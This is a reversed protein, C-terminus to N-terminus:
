LPILDRQQEANRIQERLTAIEDQDTDKTPKNPGQLVALKLKKEAISLEELWNKMDPTDMNNSEGVIKIRMALIDEQLRLQFLEAEINPDAKKTGKLEHQKEELDGICTKVQLQQAELDQLM